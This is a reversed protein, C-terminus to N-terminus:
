RNFYQFTTSLAFYIAIRPNGTKLKTVPNVMHWGDEDQVSAIFMNERINFSQLVNGDKDTSLFEGGEFDDQDSFYLLCSIIRNKNDIHNGKGGNILGYGEFGLGVDMRSYLFTDNSKFVGNVPEIFDKNFDMYDPYMINLNICLHKWFEPNNAIYRRFDQLKPTTFMDETVDLSSRGGSLKELDIDRIEDRLSEYFDFPLFNYIVEMRKM